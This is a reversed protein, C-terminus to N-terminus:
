KVTPPHANKTRVAIGEQGLLFIRRADYTSSNTPFYSLLYRNNRLEDCISKAAQQAESFPFVRGGTGEALKEVVERPKPQNRRYAGNTRDPLQLVYLTVNLSQMEGLVDEFSIKSGRDLGDTILVIAV